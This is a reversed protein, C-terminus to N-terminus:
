HEPQIKQSVLDVIEKVTVPNLRSDPCTSEFSWRYGLFENPIEIDFEEEIAWMLGEADLDDAGLDFMINAQPTIQEPEVELQEVVISKVKEFIEQTDLKLNAEEFEQSKEQKVEEQQKRIREEAKIKAEEFEKALKQFELEAEIIVEKAIKKHLPEIRLNLIDRIFVFDVQHGSKTYIEKAVRWVVENSQYLIVSLADESNDPLLRDICQNVAYELVKLKYNQEEVSM